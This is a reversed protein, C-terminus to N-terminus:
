KNCLKSELFCDIAKASTEATIKLKEKREALPENRKAGKVIEDWSTERLSTEVVDFAIVRPDKAIERVLAYLQTDSLGADAPASVGPAFEKSVGDIDLSFYILDTGNGATELARKATEKIDKIESDFIITVAESKAYTELEQYIPSGSNHIGIAAVNRGDINLAKDEMLRRFPNGSSIVGGVEDDKDFDRMDFHADFYDVGVEEGPHAQCVGRALPYAVSHDGGISVVIYGQECAKKTAASMLDHAKITAEKQEKRFTVDNINEPTVDLNYEELPLMEFVIEIGRDTYKGLFKERFAEFIAEPGKDAGTIGRWRLMSRIGNDFPCGMIKFKVKEM